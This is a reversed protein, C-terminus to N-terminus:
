DIMEVYDNENYVQACHDCLYGIIKGNADHLTYMALKLQCFMCEIGRSLTEDTM